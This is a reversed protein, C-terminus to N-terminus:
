GPRRRNIRLLGLITAILVVLILGVILGVPAGGSPASPSTSGMAAVVAFDGLRTSVTEFSGGCGAIFTKLPTWTTGDLREVM